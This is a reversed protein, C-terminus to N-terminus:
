IRAERVEEESIGLYEGHRPTASNVYQPGGDPHLGWYEKFWFPICINEHKKIKMSTHLHTYHTGSFGVNGIHDGEEVDIGLSHYGPELDYFEPAGPIVIEDTGHIYISRIGTYPSNPTERHKIIIMNDSEPDKPNRIHVIVKGSAMSYFPQGLSYSKEPYRKRDSGDITHHGLIDVMELDLAFRNKFCQHSASTSWGQTVTWRGSKVPLSFGDELEIGTLKMYKDICSAIEDRLIERGEFSDSRASDRGKLEVELSYARERFYQADM